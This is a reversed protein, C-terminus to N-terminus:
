VQVARVPIQFADALGKILRCRARQCGKRLWWAEQSDCIEQPQLRTLHQKGEHM